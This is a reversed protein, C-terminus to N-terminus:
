CFFFIGKVRLAGQWFPRRSQDTKLSRWYKRSNPFIIWFHLSIFVLAFEQM